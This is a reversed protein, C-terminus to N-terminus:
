QERLSKAKAYLAKGEAQKGNIAVFGKLNLAKRAQKICDAWINIGSSQYRKKSAASAKKSVIKGFKNRTLMDKTMGSTTKEKSGRLVQSRAFKGRAIKTVRKAKMSRAGKMAPAKKMPLAMIASLNASRSLPLLSDQALVAQAM